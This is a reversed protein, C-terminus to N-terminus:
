SGVHPLVNFSGDAGVTVMASDSSRDHHRLRVAVPDLLSMVIGGTVLKQKQLASKVDGPSISKATTIADALERGTDWGEGGEDIQTASGLGAAKMAAIYAKTDALAPRTPRAPRSPALVNEPTGILYIDSM